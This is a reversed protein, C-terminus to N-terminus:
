VETLQFFDENLPYWVDHEFVEIYVLLREELAPIVPYVFILM